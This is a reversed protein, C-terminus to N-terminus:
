MAVGDTGNVPYTLKQPVTNSLTTTKYYECLDNLSYFALPEAFGYRKGDYLIRIHKTVGGHRMTLTHADNERNSKRFLYCGDDKDRMLLESTPRDISADIYVETNGHGNLYKRQQSLGGADTSTMFM